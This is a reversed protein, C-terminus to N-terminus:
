NAGRTAYVARSALVDGRAEDLASLSAKAIEARVEASLGRAEARRILERHYTVMRHDYTAYGLFQEDTHEPAFLEPVEIAFHLVRTPKM